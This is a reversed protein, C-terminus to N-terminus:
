KTAFWFLSNPNLITTVTPKCSMLEIYMVRSVENTKM